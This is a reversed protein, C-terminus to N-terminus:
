EVIEVRDNDAVYRYVHDFLVKESSVVTQKIKRVMQAIKELEGGTMTKVECVTIQVKDSYWRELIEKIVNVLGKAHWNDSFSMETCQCACRNQEFMQVNQM